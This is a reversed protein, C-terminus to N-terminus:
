GAAVNLLHHVAFADAHRYLHPRFKDAPVGRMDSLFVELSHFELYTSAAYIEIRNCTSLIVMETTTDYGGCGIRALAVRTADENFALWERLSVPTTTHNLGLCLIHM